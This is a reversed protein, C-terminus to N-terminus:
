LGGRDLESSLTAQEHEVIQLYRWDLGANRLPIDDITCAQLVSMRM